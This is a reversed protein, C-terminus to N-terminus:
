LQSRAQYLLSRAHRHHAVDDDINTLATQILEKVTFKHKPKNTQQNNVFAVGDAKRVISNINNRDMFEILESLVITVESKNVESM